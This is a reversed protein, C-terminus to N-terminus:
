APPDATPDTEWSQRDELLAQLERIVHPLQDATLVVISDEEGMSGPQKIAVYGADSVYIETEHAQRLKFGM